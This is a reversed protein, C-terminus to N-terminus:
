GPNGDPRSRNTRRGGIAAEIHVAPRWRSNLRIGREASPPWHAMRVLKIIKPMVSDNAHRQEEEKAFSYGRGFGFDFEYGRRRRWRGLRRTWRTWSVRSEGGFHGIANSNDPSM